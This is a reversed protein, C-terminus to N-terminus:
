LATGDVGEYPCSKRDCLFLNKSGPTNVVIKTRIFKTVSCLERISMNELDKYIDSLIRTKIQYDNM